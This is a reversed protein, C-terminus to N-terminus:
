AGTKFGLSERFSPGVPNIRIGVLRGPSFLTFTSRELIDELKNTKVAYSSLEKALGGPFDGNKKNLSSFAGKHKYGSSNIYDALHHM